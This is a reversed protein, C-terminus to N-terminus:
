INCVFQRGLLNITGGVRYKLIRKEVFKGTHYRDMEKMGFQFATNGQKTQLTTIELSTSCRTNRRHIAQIHRAM